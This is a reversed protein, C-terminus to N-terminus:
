LDRGIQLHTRLLQAQPRFLQRRARAFRETVHKGAFSPQRARVVLQAPQPALQVHHALLAVKYRAAAYKAFSDRHAVLVGRNVRM